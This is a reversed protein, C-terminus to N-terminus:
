CKESALSLSKEWALASAVITQLDALKPQWALIRKLKDANAVLQAPDGARRDQEKVNLSRGIEAEIAKIVERVSYGYGYGCNFTESQGGQALCDLAKVHAEALDSVHIYDRVCTGDATPYDTGFIAMQERKGCALEAAVKILHTANDVLQGSRRQPDAGAVNFYRLSVYSFDHAKAVDQLMWETMLKSRGYPNIPSLASKETVQPTDPCGYVAATSSFVFHRINQQICANVLQCSGVTNNKYYKLPKAVSEPVIISAAFDMVADIHREQLLTNVLAQDAIDGVILKASDPVLQRKGTSLDDLVVVKYGADLLALVVHSGIYGAGGTVLVRNIASM